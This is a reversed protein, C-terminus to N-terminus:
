HIVFITPSGVWPGHGYPMYLWNQQQTLLAGGGGIPGLQIHIAEIPVLRYM